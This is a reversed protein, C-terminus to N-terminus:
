AAQPAAVSGRVPAYVIVEEDDDQENDVSALLRRLRLPGEVARSVPQQFQLAEHAKALPGFARLGWDEPLAAAGAAAVGPGGAPAGTAAPPVLRALAEFLDARAKAEAGDPQQPPGGMEPQLTLWQLLVHLPPLLPSRALAGAAEEEANGLRAAAATLRAALGFALGMAHRRLEARQLVESFGPRQGEPSWSAHNGAFAAAAALQLLAADSRKAAGHHADSARTASSRALLADLDALAAAAVGPAADLSVRTFLIGHLRVFRTSMEALLRLVPVKSRERDRPADRACEDAATNVPPGLAEYRVRNQEFLMALNQRAVPFPQPAALSRFYHVVAPLEADAYTALVALQNHANGGEPFIDAALQYFREARSWDKQGGDEAEAAGYRALDGLCILCRCVSPRCDHPAESPPPVAAPSLAAGLASAEAPSLEYGVSGYVAQLKAALAQYFAEACCLFHLFASRVKRLAERQKDGAAVAKHIRARFEAIVRYFVTKWLVQETEAAQAAGYDQLLLAEYAQGM